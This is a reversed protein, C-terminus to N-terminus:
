YNHNNAQLYTLTTNDLPKKTTKEEKEKPFENQQTNEETQSSKRITEKLSSTTPSKEGNSINQDTTAKQDTTNQSKSLIFSAMSSTNSFPYRLAPFLSNTGFEVASSIGSTAIGLAVDTVNLGLNLANTTTNLAEIAGYQFEGTALLSATNITTAVLAGSGTIIKDASSGVKDTVYNTVNGVTKVPFSMVSGAYPIVNDVKEIQESVSDTVQKTATGPFQLISKAVTGIFGIGRKLAHTLSITGKALPNAHKKVSAENHSYYLGKDIQDSKFLNQVIQNELDFIQKAAELEENSGKKANLLDDTIKNIAHNLPNSDQNMTLILEPFTHAIPFEKAKNEEAQTLPSYLMLLAPLCTSSLLKKHNM